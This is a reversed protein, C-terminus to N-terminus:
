LDAIRTPAPIPADLTLDLGQRTDHALATAIDPELM